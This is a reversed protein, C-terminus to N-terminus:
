TAYQRREYVRLLWEELQNVGILFIGDTGCTLRPVAKTKRVYAARYFVREGTSCVVARLLDM